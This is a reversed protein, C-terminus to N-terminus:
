VVGDQREKLAEFLSEALGIGGARAMEEAQARVLFSSFQDEGVGGGFSDRTEGFGASKLMETLFTAELARAARHLDADQGTADPGTPAPM